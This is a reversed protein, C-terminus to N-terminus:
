LELVKPPWRLCIMFDLSQSWGPWCPSVRDRGFICFNAPRPPAGRYDWSNLLSLCSFQKFRCPPPQLSSLDCWQVRAQSGLLVRNMNAMRTKSSRVEHDVWRPRGFHGWRTIFSFLVGSHAVVGERGVGVAAIPCALEGSGSGLSAARVKPTCVSEAFGSLTPLEDYGMARGDQGVHHFGMEVLFVFILQTHHHVDTTSSSPLSLCFLQNFESPPPQLSSLNYWQMGVQYGPSLTSSGSDLGRLVVTPRRKYSSAVGIGLSSCSAHHLAKDSTLCQLLARKKRTGPADRNKSSCHKTGNHSIWHSEGEALVAEHLKQQTPRGAPEVPLEVVGRHPAELHTNSTNWSDWEGM